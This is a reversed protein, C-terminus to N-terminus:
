FVVRPSFKCAQAHKRKYDPRNKIPKNCHGCIVSEGHVSKEHRSRNSTSSIEGPCHRCHLQYQTQLSTAPSSEATLSINSPPTNQCSESSPISAPTNYESGIHPHPPLLYPQWVDIARGLGQYSVLDSHDPGHGFFSGRDGMHLGSDAPYGAVIQSGFSLLGRLHLHSICAACIKLV